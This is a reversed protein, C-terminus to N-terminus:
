RLGQLVRDGLVDPGHASGLLVVGDDDACPLCPAWEGGRERATSPARRQDLALVNTTGADVLPTRGGLRHHRTRSRLRSITFLNRVPLRRRISAVWPTSRM